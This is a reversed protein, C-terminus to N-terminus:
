IQKTVTLVEFLMANGQKGLNIRVFNTQETIGDMAEIM